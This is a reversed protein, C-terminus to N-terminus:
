RIYRDWTGFRSEIPGRRLSLLIVLVGVAVNNWQVMPSAGEIVWPAAVLWIGLPVNVFRAARAAEGFGIVAFTIVLAGVLQDNGAATGGLGLIGPAAMLWVGVIACAALNWPILNLEM